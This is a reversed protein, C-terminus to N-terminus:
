QNSFQSYVLHIQHYTIGMRYTKNNSNTADLFKLITLFKWLKTEYVDRALSYYILCFLYIIERCSNSKFECGAEAVIHSLGEYHIGEEACINCKSIAIALAKCTAGIVVFDKVLIEWSKWYTLLYNLAAFQCITEWWWNQDSSPSHPYNCDNVFPTALKWTILSFINTWDFDFKVGFAAHLSALTNQSPFDKIIVCRNQQWWVHIVTINSTYKSLDQRGFKSVRTLSIQM